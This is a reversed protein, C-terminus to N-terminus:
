PPPDGPAPQRGPTRFTLIRNKNSLWATEFELTSLKVNSLRLKM